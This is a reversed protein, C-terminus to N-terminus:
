RQATWGSEAACCLKVGSGGCRPSPGAAAAKGAAARGKVALYWNGHLHMYVLYSCSGSAGSTDIAATGTAASGCGLGLMVENNADRKFQFEVGM